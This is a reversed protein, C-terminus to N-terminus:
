TRPSTPAAGGVKGARESMEIERTKYVIMQEYISLLVAYTMGARGDLFGRKVVYFLFFKLLPRCPLRYFLGKQHYRREHIDRNLLAEKLSFPRRERRNAVIQQAEFSSYANHRDLWNSLGKSFPFHDLFGDIQGTPGDATAQEHVPREFRMQEHRYLRVYYPTAQIHKLWTGMFFDRRRIRFAVYDGPDRVAADIFDRLEPTVREDADISLLWPHKFPMNRLAWNRQAAYNDFRRQAVHAGFQEATAVTADDSYSDLVHVDDCWAVSELCGPLDQEENKTLVLVSVPPRM